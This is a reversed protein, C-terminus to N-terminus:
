RPEGFWTLLAERLSTVSPTGDTAWVIYGDPRLLLATVGLTEALRRVAVRDSWGDAVARM